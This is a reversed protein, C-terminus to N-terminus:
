RLSRYGGSVVEVEYGAQLLRRGAQMASGGRECYLIITKEKPLRYAWQDYEEFPLNLAGHFHGARYAAPERLDIIVCARCRRRNEMEHWSILNLGEYM